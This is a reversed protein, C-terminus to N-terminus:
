NCTVIEAEITRKNYSLKIRDGPNLQEKVKVFGCSLGKIQLNEPKNNDNICYIRGNLRDISPETVCTLVGGIQNNKNDLVISTNSPV